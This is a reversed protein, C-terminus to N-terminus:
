EKEENSAVELGASVRASHRIALNKKLADRQETMWGVLRDAEALSSVTFFMMSSGDIVEFTSAQAGHSAVLLKGESLAFYRRESM